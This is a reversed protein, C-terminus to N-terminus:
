VVYPARLQYNMSEEIAQSVDFIRQEEFHPAMIQIGIPLGEKSYGVPVSMGPIGALNASTTYLDNLYMKLPDNTKEGIKFAPTASVPSLIVDCSNFAELFEKKLLQLPRGDAGIIVQYDKEILYRIIPICRAAHGLGWDLPAILIRMM